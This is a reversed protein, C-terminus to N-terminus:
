FLHSTSRTFRSHKPILSHNPDNTEFKMSDPNELKVKPSIPISPNEDFSDNELKISPNAELNVKKLEGMERNLDDKEVQILSKGKSESKIKKSSSSQLNLDLKSDSCSRKISSNSPNSLSNLNSQIPNLSSLSRKLNKPHHILNSHNLDIFFIIQQAWGAFDGWLEIFKSKILDYDSKLISKSKTSTSTSQSLFQYDRKAIQYIHVDVPVTEIFGLGFLCICDSVKPGVGSFQNILTQHAISYSLSQLSHLYDIPKINQSTSIELLSKVSNIIYSSRYGFGLQKLRSEDCSTSLQIPTPFSHISTPKSQISIIEDENSITLGPTPYPMLDGFSESLNKIMLTIRPINNNSSCIFSILTEWPDQKCVRLGDFFGNSTKLKFNLDKKSWDQYLRQLSVNLVFYDNLFKLSTNQNLDIQYDEFQNLHYLSIYYIGLDVQRLIITRTQNVISWETHQRQDITQFSSSNWNFSQGSRLTLSLNLEIPNIKLFRIPTKLITM